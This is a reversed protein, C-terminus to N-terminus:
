GTQFTFKAAPQVLRPAAASVLPKGQEFFRELLLARLVGRSTMPRKM